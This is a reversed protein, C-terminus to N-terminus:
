VTLVRLKMYHVTITPELKKLLGNIGSVTSDIADQVAKGQIQGGSPGQIFQSNLKGYNGADTQGYGYQGGSRTEGQTGKYIAYLALAAAIYPGAAGISIGLGTSGGVAAGNAVSAFTSVGATFQSFGASLGATFNGVTGTLSAVTGALSAGSSISNALNGAGSIASGGSAFSSTGSLFNGIANTGGPLGMVGSIEGQIAVTIKQKFLNVIYDKLKKAGAKGGDFLTTALIDGLDNAMKQMEDNYKTAADVAIETNINKVKDAFRKQAELRRADIDEPKSNYTDRELKDIEAMEKALAIEAQRTKIVKKREEDTKGILSAQLVLDAAENKVQIDLEKSKIIADEYKKAIDNSIDEWAKSLKRAAPTAENLAAIMKLIREVSFGNAHAEGIKVLSTYYDKGLDDAKGLLRAELEL